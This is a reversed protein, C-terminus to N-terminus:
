FCHAPTIQWGFTHTITAIIPMLTRSMTKGSRASHKLALYDSCLERGCNMISERFLSTDLSPYVPYAFVPCYVADEGQPREEKSLLRNM